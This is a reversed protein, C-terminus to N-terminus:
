ITALEFQTGPTYHAASDARSLHLGFRPVPRGPYTVMGEEVPHTLDVLRHGSRAASDPTATSDPTAAPLTGRSGKHPEAVFRLDSISVQDVMLLGLHGILLLGVDDASLRDSVVDLRFDRVSLSGGNLFTVDADFCARQPNM